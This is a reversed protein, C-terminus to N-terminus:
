AALVAELSRLSGVTRVCAQAAEAGKVVFHKAFFDLHEQHEHFNLPTLVVSFVPVGTDLQVRMLGDIVAEAVFEHRYIGGNVVLGCAVVADFQGSRALRQAHLPIEFAGPVRFCRVHAEPTGLRAAEAIFSKRGEDVIDAHWGSQIFAVRLPLVAEPHVRPTESSVTSQIM